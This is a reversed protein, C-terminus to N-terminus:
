MNYMRLYMDINIIYCVERIKLHINPNV